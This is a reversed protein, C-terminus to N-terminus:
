LITRGGDVNITQGTIFDAGSGALFLVAAMIDEARGVRGLPTSDEVRKLFVPDSLRAATLPTAFYGPALANVRINHEAWEVALAKTMMVVGAKTSAYVSIPVGRRVLFAVASAINIIRGGGRRIMLKAAAQCGFYVGRLNVGSIWDFDEPTVDLAPKMRNVGANNVMVDLRGYERDVAGILDNISDPDGADLKVVLARRGLARIEAAVEEAEGPSNLYTVALDAGARALALAMWSGLGRSSGTVVATQGELSFDPHDIPRDM